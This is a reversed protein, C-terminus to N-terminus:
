DTTDKARDDELPLGNEKQIQREVESNLEAGVLVVMSAIWLWMMLGIAAGLSGYTENYNAFNAVYWSFLLSAVLLGAAAFLAGPSIWHWEADHKNPGFRYLIALAITLAVVIAPWRALSIVAEATGGLNLAGLVIPVVTILGLMTMVLLIGGLTFMLSVLNLKLFGRGEPVFWAINLAGIMAKMGGNASYLATLLGLITAFGLAKSPAEVISVIQTRIIDVAGSPLFQELLGIHEVITQPDAFLGYISVLATIAPFLALIGFFTVGGAVSTVRDKSIEHIVRKGIDLWSRSSLQWPSEPGDAILPPPSAAKAARIAENSAGSPQTADTAAPSADLRFRERVEAPLDGFLADAVTPRPRNIM